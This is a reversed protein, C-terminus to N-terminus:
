FVRAAGGGRSWMRAGRGGGGDAVLGCSLLPLLLLKRPSPLTVSVGAADISGGDVMRGLRRNWQCPWSSGAFFLYMFYLSISIYVFLLLFSFLDVYWCGFSTIGLEFIFCYFFFM